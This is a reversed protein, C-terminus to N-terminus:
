ELFFVEEGLPVSTEVSLLLLLWSVFFAVAHTVLAVREEMTGGGGALAAEPELSCALWRLAAEVLPFNPTRFSELSIPHPFGLSRMEESFDLTRCM